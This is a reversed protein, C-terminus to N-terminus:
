KKFKKLAWHIISKISEKPAYYTAKIFLKVGLSLEGNMIKGIGISAFQGINKNILPHMDKEFIKRFAVSHSILKLPISDFLNMVGGSNKRYVSRCENVGWIKGCYSAALVLSNDTAVLKYAYRNIQKYIESELIIRRYLLSATPTLWTEYLMGREFYGTKFKAFEQDQKEGNEYHVMANHFCMSYDPHSELFDVQKQLKLPDTWYDDGECMAVYKAGTSNAATLMIYGLSGDRKSYQNEPEYIPYIIEPYKEAYERIIAATGDTSADDHVIAVFPFNTKQMVFGDLTDRIYAEHNYALTLSVVLPKIQKCKEEILEIQLKTSKNINASETSM